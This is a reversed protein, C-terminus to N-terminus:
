EDGGLGYNGALLSFDVATVCGDGNFDVAQNYMPQNQCASYAASLLSFDTANVYNDGNADGFAFDGFDIQNNGAILEITEFSKQLTGAAKILLDYEGPTLNPMFFQGNADTTLEFVEPELPEIGSTYVMQLTLATSWSPAPPEPRGPLSLNGTLIATEDSSVLVQFTMDESWPGIGNGDLTEVRWTYVGAALDLTEPVVSCSGGSCIESATYEEEFVTEDPLNIQLNYSAAGPVNEWTFAPQATHVTGSPSTLTSARGVSFAMPQSWPRTGDTRHAQVKWVYTDNVLLLPPTVNCLGQDCIDQEDYLKEYILDGGSSFINLLYDEAEEVDNWSYIPQTIETQGTPAILNPGGIYEGHIFKKGSISYVKSREPCSSCWNMETVTVTTTSVSIVYAVHGYVSLSEDVMIDGLRPTTDVDLGAAVAKIAWQNANGSGVATGVDPRMLAAWYVCNGKHDGTISDAACRWHTIQPHGCCGEANPALVCSGGKHGAESPPMTLQPISKPLNDLTASLPSITVSDLITEFVDLATGHDGAIYQVLLVRDAADIYAMMLGPSMGSEPQGIILAPQGGIVANTAAPISVEAFALLQSQNINVWSLLDTSPSKQWVDISVFAGSLGTLEDRQRIVNMASASSNTLVTAATWNPPYNISYKWINNQFLLWDAPAATPASPIKATSRAALVPSSGGSVLLTLLAAMIIWKRLPNSTM